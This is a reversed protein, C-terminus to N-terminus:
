VVAYQMVLLERYTGNIHAVEDKTYDRHEKAIMKSEEEGPVQFLTERLTGSMIKMVCQSGAHNHICSYYYYM